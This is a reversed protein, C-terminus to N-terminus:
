RIISRSEEATQDSDAFVTERPQISRAAWALDPQSCWAGRRELEASVGTYRSYERARATIKLGIEAISKM